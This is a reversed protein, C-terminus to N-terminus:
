AEVAVAADAPEEHTFHAAPPPVLAKGDLAERVGGGVIRDGHLVRLERGVDRLEVFQAREHPPLHRRHRGPNKLYYLLHNIADLYKIM